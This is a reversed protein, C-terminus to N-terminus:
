RNISTMMEELIIEASNGAGYPSAGSEQPAVSVAWTSLLDESNIKCLRNWGLEITEPWETEDRVTICPTRYFYAEKQVGGSDTIVKSASMILAHMDMYSLPDILLVNKLHNGLNHEDIMKRTRPHVPMIVPEREAILELSAILEALSAYDTNEQRHVTVLTYNKPKLGWLNLKEDRNVSTENHKVVDFMIDGSFVVRQALTNKAAFPFGERELNSVALTSPCFLLSSLRDTLIRNIEEPMHMNHSRLGSEIHAVPIHYKAASLAGALTSNTDGYVVVVDPSETSLVKDLGEMMQGTMAGHSLGNIELNYDPAPIGLDTFFIESMNSDFHQGTHVIVESVEKSPYNGIVRSLASAKIFQPRAGLVTVIKM